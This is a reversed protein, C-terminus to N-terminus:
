TSGDQHHCRILCCLRMFRGTVDAIPALLLFLAFRLFVFVCVCVSSFIQLQLVLIVFPNTELSISLLGCELVHTLRDTQTHKRIM